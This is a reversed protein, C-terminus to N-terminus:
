PRYGSGVIIVFPIISIASFRLRLSVSVTRRVFESFTAIMAFDFRALIVNVSYIKAIDFSVFITNGGSVAGIMKSSFRM